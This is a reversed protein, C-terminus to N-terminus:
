LWLPLAKESTEVTCCHEVVMWPSLWWFLFFTFGASICTEGSVTSEIFWLVSCGCSMNHKFHPSSLSQSFLLFSFDNVSSSVSPLTHPHPVWSSRQFLVTQPLTFVVGHLFCLYYIDPTLSFVCASRLICLEECTLLHTQLSSHHLGRRLVVVRYLSRALFQHVSKKTLKLPM